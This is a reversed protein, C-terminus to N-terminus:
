KSKLSDMHQGLYCPGMQKGDLEVRHNGQELQVSLIAVPMLVLVAEEPSPHQRGAM